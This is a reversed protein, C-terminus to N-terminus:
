VLDDLFIRPDPIPRDNRDYFEITACERETEPLFYLLSDIGTTSCIPYHYSLSEITWDGVIRIVGGGERYIALRNIMTEETFMKEKEIPFPHIM